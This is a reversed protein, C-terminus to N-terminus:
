FVEKQERIIRDKFKLMAIPNLYTSDMKFILSFDFNSLTLFVRSSIEDFSFRLSDSIPIKKLTRYGWIIYIYSNKILLRFIDDINIANITNIYPKINFKELNRELIISVLESKMEIKIKEGFISLYGNLFFINDNYYLNEFKIAYKLHKTNEINQIKDYLSIL